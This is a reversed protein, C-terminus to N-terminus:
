ALSPSTLGNQEKRTEKATFGWDRREDLSLVAFNGLLTLFM